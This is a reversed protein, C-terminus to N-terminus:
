ITCIMVLQLMECSLASNINDKVGSGVLSKLVRKLRYLMNLFVLLFAFLPEWGNQEVLATGDPDYLSLFILYSECPWM